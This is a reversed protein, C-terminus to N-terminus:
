LWGAAWVAKGVVILQNAQDKPVFLREYSSNESIIAIGDWTRQLRKAYLHGDLLLVYIGEGEISTRTHDVVVTDGDNLVPEMSDGTIRIASLADPTLGQRRLSYRTFSINTLVKSNENWAGCGASVRADYLPIFSYKESLADEKEMDPINGSIVKKCGRGTSLWLLQVGAADSLRVLGEISPMSDGSLWRHFTSLAVNAIEAAAKRGGLMESLEKIRTGIGDIPNPVLESGSKSLESQEYAM